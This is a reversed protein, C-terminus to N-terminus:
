YAQVSRMCMKTMEGSSSYSSRQKWIAQFNTESITLVNENKRKCSTMVPIATRTTSLSPLLGKSIPPTLPMTLKNYKNDIRLSYQEEMAITVLYGTCYFWSQNRTNPCIIKDEAV